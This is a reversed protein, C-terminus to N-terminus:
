DKPSAEGIACAEFFVLNDWSEAAEIGMMVRNTGGSFRSPCEDRGQGKTVGLGLTGDLVEGDDERGERWSEEPELDDVKRFLFFACFKEEQVAKLGM